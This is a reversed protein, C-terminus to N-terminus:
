LHEDAHSGVCLKWIGLPALLYGALMLGVLVQWEGNLHTAIALLLASGVLATYCALAWVMLGPKSRLKSWAYLGAYAAGFLIVMAAALFTIFFDNPEVPEIM